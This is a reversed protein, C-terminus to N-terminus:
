NDFFIFILFFVYYFSIFLYNLLFNIYNIFNIDGKKLFFNFKNIIFYLYIFLFLKNLIFVKEFINLFFIHTYRSLLINKLYIIFTLM